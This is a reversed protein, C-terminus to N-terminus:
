WAHMCVCLVMSCHKWVMEQTFFWSLFREIWQQGNSEYFAFVFCFVVYIEFSFQSLYFYFSM